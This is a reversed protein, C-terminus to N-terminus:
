PRGLHDTMVAIRWELQTMMKNYSDLVSSSSPPDFINKVYLYVYTKIMEYLTEDDTYESWTEKKGTISFGDSPGVGLQFLVILASNIHIVLDADFQTYTEDIGVLKKITTLISENM